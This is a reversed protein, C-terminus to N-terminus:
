REPFAALELAFGDVVKALEGRPIEFNLLYPPAQETKLEPHFELWLGCQIRCLEEDGGMDVLRLYPEQFFLSRPQRGEALACLFDMLDRAEWTLLCPAAAQWSRGQDAAEIAIELWNADEEEYEEPSFQPFEYGMIRLELYTGNKNELRM